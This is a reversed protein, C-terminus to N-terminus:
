GAPNSQPPSTHWGAPPAQWSQGKGNGCGWHLKLGELKGEPFKEGAVVAVLIYPTGDVAGQMIHAVVSIDSMRAVGMATTSTGQMAGLEPRVPCISWSREQHRYPSRLNHKQQSYRASNDGCIATKSAIRKSTRQHPYAMQVLIPDFGTCSSTMTMVQQSHASSSDVWDNLLQAALSHLDNLSVEEQQGKLQALEQRVEQLAKNVIGASRTAQAQATEAERCCMLNSGLSAYRTQSPQSSQINADGPGPGYASKSWDLRSM